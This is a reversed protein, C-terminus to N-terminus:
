VRSPTIIVHNIVSMPPGAASAGMVEIECSEQLGRVLEDNMRTIGTGQEISFTDAILAVKLRDRRM